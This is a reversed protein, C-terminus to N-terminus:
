VLDDCMMGLPLTIPLTNRDSTKGRFDKEATASDFIM